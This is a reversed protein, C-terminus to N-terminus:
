NEASYLLPQTGGNEGNGRQKRKNRNGKMEGDRGTWFSFWQSGDPTTNPFNPKTQNLGSKALGWVLGNLIEWILSLSLGFQNL